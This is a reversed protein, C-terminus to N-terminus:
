GIKWCEGAFNIYGVACNDGVFIIKYQIANSFRWKFTITKVNPKRTFNFNFRPTGLTNKAWIGPICFNAIRCSLFLRKMIVMDLLFVITLQQVIWQSIFTGNEISNIDQQDLTKSATISIDLVCYLSWWYSCNYIIHLNIRVQM